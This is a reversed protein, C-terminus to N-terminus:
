RQAESDSRILTITSFSISIIVIVVVVVVVIKLLLLVLLFFLYYYYYHYYCHNDHQFIYYYFLSIKLIAGRINIRLILFLKNEIINDISFLILLLLVM